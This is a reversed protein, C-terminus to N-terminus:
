VLIAESAAEASQAADCILQMRKASVGLAKALKVVTRPRARTQGNCIRSITSADVDALLGAADQTIGRSHLFERLTPTM